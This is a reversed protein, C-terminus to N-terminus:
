EPRTAVITKFQNRNAIKLVEVVYKWPVNEDSHISIYIDESNGVKQILVAELNELDVQQNEVFFRIDPTISVTTLPKASTQQSSRPLILKLATPHILTSTIMFFILLLFVIDSMGAMSFSASVKNRQKLPM